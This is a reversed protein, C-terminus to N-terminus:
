ARGQRLTPQKPEASCNARCRCQEKRDRREDAGRVFAMAFMAVIAWTCLGIAVWSALNM